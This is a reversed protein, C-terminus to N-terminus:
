FEISLPPHYANCIKEKIKKKKETFSSCFWCGAVSPQINIKSREYIMGVGPVRDAASGGPQRPLGGMVDPDHWGRGAREPGEQHGGEAPGPLRGPGGQSVQWEHHLSLGFGGDGNRRMVPMMKMIIMMLLLVMATSRRASDRRGGPSARKLVPLLADSTELSADPSGAHVLLAGPPRAPGDLLCM